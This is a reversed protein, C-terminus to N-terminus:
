PVTSPTPSSSSTTWRPGGTYWGVVLFPDGNLTITEGVPDTFGFLQEKAGAGLMCVPLAEDVELFTMERGSALKYNNCVGYQESGLKM